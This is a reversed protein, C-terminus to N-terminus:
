DFHSADLRTNDFVGRWSLVGDTLSQDERNKSQTMCSLAGEDMPLSERWHQRTHWSAREGLAALERKKPEPFDVATAVGAARMQEIWHAVMRHAGRTEAQGVWTNRPICLRFSAPRRAWWSLTLEVPADGPQQPANDSLPGAMTQDIAEVDARTYVGYAWEDSGPRVRPTRVQQGSTGFRGTTGDIPDDSDSGFTATEFVSGHSLADAFRPGNTAETSAFRAQGPDDPSANSDAFHAGNLYYINASVIRENRGDRDTVTARGSPYQDRWLHAGSGEHSAYRRSEELEVQPWVSLVEEPQLTGAYLIIEGTARNHLCPYSTAQGLARLRLEPVDEYLSANDLTFRMGPRPQPSVVLRQPQAPNDTIWAELVRAGTNPCETLPRGARCAPCREITGPPLGYGITADLHKEIRPCTEAGLTAIALELLARPTNLGRTVIRATILLRSRYAESEEGELRDIGLLAGLRELPSAAGNGAADGSALQLWHDRQTRTLGEDIGALAAAMAEIIGALPSPAPQGGFVRPLVALLARRRARSDAM